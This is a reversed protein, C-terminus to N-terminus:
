FGSAIRTIGHHQTITQAYPAFTAQAPLSGATAQQRVGVTRLVLTTHGGGGFCRNATSSNHMFAHYYWGPSLLFDCSVYQPVTNGVMATPGTSFIRAGEWTYIGVDAHNGAAAGNSWWIRKVPYPWPLWFPTYIALNAVWTRSLIGDGGVKIQAYAYMGSYRSYNSITPPTVPQWKM